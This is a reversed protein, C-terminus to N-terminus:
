WFVECDGRFMVHLGRTMVDSDRAMVGHMVLLDVVPRLIGAANTLIRPHLSSHHRYRARSSSTIPVPTM